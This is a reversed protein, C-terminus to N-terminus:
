PEKGGRGDSEGGRPRVAERTAVEGERPSGIALPRAARDSQLEYTTSFTAELVGPGAM